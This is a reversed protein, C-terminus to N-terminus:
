NLKIVKHTYTDGGMTVKVFYVGSNLDYLSLTTRTQGDEPILHQQVAQGSMNFVNVSLPGSTNRWTITLVDSVPNPYLQISPAISLNTVSTGTDIPPNYTAISDSQTFFELGGRWSGVLMEPKGDNTIDAIAVSAREGVDIGSYKTYLQVFSGSILSDTDVEYGALRGNSNGVLLFVRNSTDLRSVFPVSYGPLFNVGEDIGGLQYNNPVADFLPNTATGRNQFYWINGRARGCVIDLLGDKNLDYLFPASFADVDIGAYMTDALVFEATDNNSINRFYRLTGSTDGLLLDMDGDGDLDGFAPTLGIWRNGATRYNPIGLFNDDALYFVPSTKSGKNIYLSLRATYFGNVYDNYGYNGVVFDMLSDGNYDFFAPYAGSGLDIMEDILFSKNQLSFLVTDTTSSDKYYWVHEYNLSNDTGNISAILDEKGDNDIDLYFGAPFADLRAPTGYSPFTSDAPAVMVASTNTGGNKLRTFYPYEADGILLELSGNGDEDFALLTGEAHRANGPGSGVPSDESRIICPENFKIGNATQSEAFNGWCKEEILFLLTDGCSGGTEISQNEYYTVYANTLNDFALLDIDGDGNVDVFAPIDSRLISLFGFQDQVNGRFNYRVTDNVLSAFFVDVATIRSPDASSTIIDMLGDCNIDRTLMWYMMPPFYAEYEPAYLYAASDVKGVNLFTLLRFGNTDANSAYKSRDFVVLDPLTDGNLRVHNFQPRFLGGAWPNTLTKGGVEVVVDNNRNFAFQAFAVQATLLVLMLGTSVLSFRKM